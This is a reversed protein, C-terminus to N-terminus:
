GLKTGCNSCFGSMSEIKLACTPCFSTAPTPAPAPTSVPAPDAAAVPEETVKTGCLSCFGVNAPIEAGCKECIKTGKIQQLQQKSEAIRAQITLIENVAASFEESPNSSNKTFYIKGIETYLSNIKGEDQSIQMNIKASGALDKTKNAVVNAGTSIKNGLKNFFDM